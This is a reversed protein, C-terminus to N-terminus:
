CCVYIWINKGDCGGQYDWLGETKDEARSDATWSSPM